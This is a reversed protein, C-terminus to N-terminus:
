VWGMEETFLQWLDSELADQGTYWAADNELQHIWGERIERRRGGDQCWEKLTSRWDERLASHDADLNRKHTSFDRRAEESLLNMGRGGMWDQILWFHSRLVHLTWQGAKHFLADCGPCLCSLPESRGGGFHHREVYEIILPGLANQRQWIGTGFCKLRQFRGVPGNFEKVPMFVVTRVPSPEAKRWEGERAPQYLARRWRDSFRDIWADDPDEKELILGLVNITPPSSRILIDLCSPLPHGHGNLREPASAWSQNIIVKRASPLWDTFTRWFDRVVDHQVEMVADVMPGIQEEEALADYEVQVNQAHRAFSLDYWTDGPYGGGLLWQSEVLYYTDEDAWFLKAAEVRLASSARMAQWLTPSSCSALIRLQLEPPLQAFEPFLLCQSPSSPHEANNCQVYLHFPIRGEGTRTVHLNWNLPKSWPPKSICGLLNCGLLNCVDQTMM